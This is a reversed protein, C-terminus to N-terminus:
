RRDKNIIKEIKRIVRLKQVESLTDFKEMIRSKTSLM